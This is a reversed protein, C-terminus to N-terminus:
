KTHWGSMKRKFEDFSMTEGADAQRIAEELEKEQEGTLEDDEDTEKATDKKLYASVDEHVMMLIEENNISDIFEHLEKKLQEATKM